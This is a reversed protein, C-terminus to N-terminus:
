ATAARQSRIRGGLATLADGIVSAIGVQPVRPCRKLRKIRRHMEAKQFLRDCWADASASTIHPHEMEVEKGSLGAAPREIPPLRGSRQQVFQAM